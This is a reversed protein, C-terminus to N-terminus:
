CLMPLTVSLTNSQGSRKDDELSRFKHMSFVRGFKDQRIHVEIVITEDTM